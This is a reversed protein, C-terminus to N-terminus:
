AQAFDRDLLALGLQALLDRVSRRDRRVFGRGRNIAVGAKLVQGVGHMIATLARFHFVGRQAGAALSVVRSRQASRRFRPGAASQRPPGNAASMTAITPMWNTIVAAKEISVGIMGSNRGTSPTSLSAAISMQAPTKFPTVESIAAKAEGKHPWTASRWPRLNISSRDLRAIPTKVAKIPAAPSTQCNKPHRASIPTKAPNELA